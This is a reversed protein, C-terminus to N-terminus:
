ARAPGGQSGCVDHVVIAIVHRDGNYHQCQLWGQVGSWMWVGNQALDVGAAIWGVTGHHHM